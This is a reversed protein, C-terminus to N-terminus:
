APAASAADDAATKGRKSSGGGGSVSSAAEKAMAKGKAFQERGYAKVDDASIDELSGGDEFHRILIKGVAYTAAGTVVSLSAMGLLTGIGPLFKFMSGVVVAGAGYGLVGGVLSTLVNRATSDTFKKGYLNALKQTMRLQIAIIAAMDFLPAPVTAAAMTAIMYDKILGQAKLSREEDTMPAATEEMEAEVAEDQTTM